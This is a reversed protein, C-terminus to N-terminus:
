GLKFPFTMPFQDSMVDGGSAVDYFSGANLSDLVYSGNLMSNVAHNLYFLSGIDRQQATVFMKNGVSGTFFEYRTLSSTDGYDQAQVSKIDLIIDKVTDTIDKIRKNVKISMIQDSLLKSPSLDYSVELVEYTKSSIGDNPLNVVCTQGAIIAVTNEINLKGQIKPNAGIDLESKMLAEAENPDKINDDKIVKTKPGYATISPVDRGFKVVPLDRDYNVLVTDGSTPIDGNNTGSVFIINKDHFDVLYNVGSSPTPNMELIGGVQVVGSDFVQTNHPKYALTFESGGDATFSERYGSLYRGGYVWVRNYIANRSEVWSAKTVNTNDFTLGTSTTGQEQFYLVKNVDVWFVCSSQDALRKLADYISIQNLEMRKINIGITTQTYTVDEAYKTMIDNIIYGVDQNTYVEPEVTLDQLRATYDRGSLVITNKTQGGQIKIDEIFGNFIKTAGTKDVPIVATSIWIEVSDNINFIDTYRGQHNEYNLTFRSSINDAGASNSVKGIKVEPQEIGAIEYRVYLTM